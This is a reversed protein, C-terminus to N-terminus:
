RYPNYSMDEPVAPVAPVAAPPATSSPRASPVVVASTRPAAHAPTGAHKDDAGRPHSGKTAPAKTTSPPPEPANASASAASASAVDAPSATATAVAGASPTVAHAANVSDAPTAGPRLKTFAAAGGVLLTAVAAVVWIMRSRAPAPAPASARVPSAFVPAPDAPAPPPSSLVGVPLQAAAAAIRIAVVASSISSATAADPDPRQPGTMDVIKTAGVLEAVAPVRQRHPTLEPRPGGPRSPERSLWARVSERQMSIDAGILKELYAAVDRHEGFTGTARSAEELADGMEACTSFRDEPERELAKMVIAEIEPAVLPNVSRVTPVPELLLRTLTEADGDGKFLRKSTFMEWMVIGMAFIDARRDLAKGRAQEPAMYAMKGKLQGSRTTTLRSAARAVGFDTIRASGDIGVLINHPSVDRHVIELPRGEDDLLIHAAHLGSLADLSLRVAVHPPVFNGAHASRAMLKALTDGEVYEMVLYYGDSDGIELIPVVHPHHLRAALRAEDLFMQIFEDDRALHPHPRKIAVLRQFGGAGGLRALYVTAMGGSALEAILEFRDLRDVEDGEARVM